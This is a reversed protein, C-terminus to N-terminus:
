IAKEVKGSKLCTTCVIIKKPKGNQLVKVKQLNPYWVKKTKRNSHSVNNGVHVSKGCIECKRSM